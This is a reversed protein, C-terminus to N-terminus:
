CTHALTLFFFLLRVFLVVNDFLFNSAEYRYVLSWPERLYKNKEM